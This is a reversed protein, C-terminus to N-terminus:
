GFDTKVFFLDLTGLNLLYLSDDRPGNLVEPERRGVNTDGGWILLVDNVLAGAHGVRPSPVDGSTQLLTASLDGTSFIYMDNTESGLALGGFLFLEGAATATAPLAPGYRPFPSPSPGSPPANKSLLNSPLLNLHHVSWPYIDHSQQRQQPSPLQSEFPSPLQQTSQEM